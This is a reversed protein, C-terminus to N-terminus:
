GYEVIRTDRMFGIMFGATMSGTLSFGINQIASSVSSPSAIIISLHHYNSINHVQATIANEIATATNQSVTQLKNWNINAIQQYQM